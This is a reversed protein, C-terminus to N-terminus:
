VNKIRFIHSKKIAQLNHIITKSNIFTFKQLIVRISNLWCNQNKNVMSLNEQVAHFLLKDTVIPNNLRNWYKIMSIIVDICLPYRGLEGYLAVKSTKNNVGLIHRCLILNIKELPLNSYIKEFPKFEDQKPSFMGLIESSYLLVPKVTHDFIYMFTKMDCPMNKFTNTLKFFAKIGRNHLDNLANIFHGNLSFVIGLYKYQKVSEIEMKDIFFKDNTLRSCKNFVMVKSKVHNIDLGWKNCYIHVKDICNQLGESNESLLLLDDAYILNNISKDGLTVPYCTQDFVKTVDNIFINFLNPSLNDGQFVGVRSPFAESLASKNLKVRLRINNYMSEIISLFKGRINLNVLKLFLAPHIVSDFAKKLDIFCCYLKKSKNLYKDIITKFKFIHDSTRCGPMFGIQEDAIINHEKLFLELRTNLISNFLKGICSTVSIGRYNNPDSHDGQKFIPVVYGESWQDPYHGSELVLNFLKKISPILVSQGYKIMENQISDPGCSKNNKLKCCAKSIEKDSIPNDLKGSGTFNSEKAQNLTNKYHLNKDLKDVGVENLTKFHDFLACHDVPVELKYTDENKLANIVAWFDKPNDQPINRLKDIISKYYNRRREKRAKNYKKNLTFCQQRLSLNYPNFALLRSYKDLTNKMDHLDHGYWPKNRKM